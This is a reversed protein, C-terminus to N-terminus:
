SEVRARKTKLQFGKHDGSSFLSGARPVRLEGPGGPRLELKNYTTEKHQDAPGRRRSHEGLIPLFIVEAAKKVAAVQLKPM